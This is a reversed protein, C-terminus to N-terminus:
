MVGEHRLLWQKICTKGGGVDGSYGGLGAAAVVRHCPIIIPIPNTRCANGVARAGGGIARAIDGYRVVEGSPIERLAQWVKEQFASPKLYLPLDFGATPDDLYAQLQEIVAVAASGARRVQPAPSPLFDLRQLESAQMLIGIRAFPTQMIADYQTGLAM